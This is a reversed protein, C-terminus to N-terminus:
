RSPKCNIFVIEDDIFYKPKVFVSIGLFNALIIVVICCISVCYIKVTPQNIYTGYHYIKPKRVKKFHTTVNKSEATDIDFSEQIWVLVVM